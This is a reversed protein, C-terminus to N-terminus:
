VRRLGRAHRRVATRARADTQPGRRPSSDEVLHVNRLDHTAFRARYEAPTVGLHRIFIRWLTSSDGILTRSAIEKLPMTTQELLRQAEEFRVRRTLAAPSEGLERRCWRSLTRPSMGMEQALREVSLPEDLHELIFPEMDGVRAPQREQRKLTQSFQAQRGSRRLFLVLNKAVSMAVAHGHDEEVIALMLDIGATIGASTWIPGDRLFIEDDTIQVNPFRRRLLDVYQWHTTARHGDLLGAEALVFAGTCISIVRGVGHHHRRLWRVMRAEAEPLKDPAGGAVVLTDPLGLAAARRLSRAGSLALGHRTRIEGTVATV